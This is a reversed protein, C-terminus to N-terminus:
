CRRMSRRLRTLLPEALSTHVAILPDFLSALRIRYAESVLRFVAGDVTFFWPRTAPVVTFQDTDARYVLQSGLGGAANKDIIEAGHQTVAVMTVTTQPRIGKLMMGPALEDLLAM